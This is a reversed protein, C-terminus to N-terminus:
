QGVSSPWHTIVCHLLSSTLSSVQGGVVEVVVVVLEVVVVEPLQASKPLTNLRPQVVTIPPETLSQRGGHM